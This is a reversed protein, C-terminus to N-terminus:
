HSYNHLIVTIQPQQFARDAQFQLRPSALRDLLSEHHVMPTKKDYRGVLECILSRVEKM